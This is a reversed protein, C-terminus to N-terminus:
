NGDTERKTDMQELKALAEMVEDRLERVRKEGDSEEKKPAKREIM